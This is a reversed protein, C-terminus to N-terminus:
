QFRLFPEFHNRHRQNPSGADLALSKLRWLFLPRLGVRRSRPVTVLVRNSWSRRGLGNRLACCGAILEPHRFDRFGRLENVMTAFGIRGGQRAKRGVGGHRKLDKNHGVTPNTLSADLTRTAICLEVLHDELADLRVRIKLGGDHVTARDSRPLGDRGLPAALLGM